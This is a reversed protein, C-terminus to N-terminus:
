RSAKRRTPSLVSSVASALDEESFPKTVCGICGADSAERQDDEDDLATIALIPIRATASRQKLTRAVEFGSMGPMRLDLLVLDPRREAQELAERGNTATLV